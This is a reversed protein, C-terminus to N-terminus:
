LLYAKATLPPIFKVLFKVPRTEAGDRQIGLDDVAQGGGKLKTGTRRLAAGASGKQVNMRFLREFDQL